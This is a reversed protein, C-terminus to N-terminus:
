KNGEEPQQRGQDSKKGECESRLLIEPYFGAIDNLLQSFVDSERDQELLIPIKEQVVTELLVEAWDIVELAIMHPLVAVGTIRAAAGLRNGTKQLRRDHLATKGVQRILATREQPTMTRYDCGLHRGHNHLEALANMYILNLKGRQERPLRNQLNKIREM